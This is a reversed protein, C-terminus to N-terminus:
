AQCCFHLTFGESEDVATIHLDNSAQCDILSSRQLCWSEEVRWSERVACLQISPYDWCCWLAPLGTTFVNIQDSVMVLCVVTTLRHHTAEHATVACIHHHSHHTPSQRKLLPKILQRKIFRSTASHGLWVACVIWGRCDTMSVLVQSVVSVTKVGDLVVESWWVYNNGM